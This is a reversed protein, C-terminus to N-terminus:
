PRGFRVQRGAHESDPSLIHCDACLAESNTLSIEGGKGRPVIEHLHMGNWTLIKNCKECRGNAREFVRRRIFQVADRRPWEAIQGDFLRAASPKRFIRVPGKDDVEVFVRGRM